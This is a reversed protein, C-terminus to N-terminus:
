RFWEGLLKEKFRFIYYHMNHLDFEKTCEIKFPEKGLESPHELWATMAKQAAKMQERNM